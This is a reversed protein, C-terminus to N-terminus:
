WISSAAPSMHGSPKGSIPVRWASCGTALAGASPSITAGSGSLANGSHCTVTAHKLAESMDQGFLDAFGMPLPAGAQKAEQYRRMVFAANETSPLEHPIMPDPADLQAELWARVDNPGPESGRRGLGFRRLAQDSSMPM